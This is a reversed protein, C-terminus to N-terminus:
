LKANNKNIGSLANSKLTHERDKIKKVAENTHLNAFQRAEIEHPANTGGYNEIWFHLLTYFNLNQLNNKSYGPPLDYSGVFRTRSQPNSEWEMHQNYHKIEHIIANIMLYKNGAIVDKDELNILISEGHIIYVAITDDFGKNWEPSIKGLASFNVYGRRLEVAGGPNRAYEDILFDIVNRSLQNPRADRKEVLFTKWTDLIKEM